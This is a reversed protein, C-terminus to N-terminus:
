AGYARLRAAMSSMVELAFSPTEQILFLFMHTDIIALTTDVAATATLSRPSHDILALEGFVGGEEILTVVRGRARLEVAGNVVGFMHVGQDNERFIITGAPVHERQAANAFLGGVGM